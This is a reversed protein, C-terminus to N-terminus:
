PSTPRSDLTARADVVVIGEGATGVIVRTLELGRVRENDAVLHTAAILLSALAAWDPDNDGSRSAVVQHALIEADLPRLPAMGAAAEQRGLQYVFAVLGLASHERISVQLERGAMPTERVIVADCQTKSCVSAFARRVEAATDINRVVMAGEGEGPQDAGWAKIEVPYGAKKAIRTAASPTTAVAQRTIAVGYSSLLVKCEHDGARNSLKDLQNRFRTRDFEDIDGPSAAAGVGAAIRQTAQGCMEVAVLTSNLGVLVPRDAQMHAHGSIPVVLLRSERDPAPAGAADVIVADTAAGPNSKPTTIATFREGLHEARRAQAATAAALWSGPPAVIAIRSGTPTGYAALLVLCEVWVEPDSTVVAGHGRLLAMCASFEDVKGRKRQAPPLFLLPPRGSAAHVAIHQALEAIESATPVQDLVQCIVSESAASPSSIRRNEISLGRARLIRMFESALPSDSADLVVVLKGIPRLQPM